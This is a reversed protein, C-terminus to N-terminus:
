RGFALLPTWDIELPVVKIMEIFEEESCFYWEDDVLKRYEGPYWPDNYVMYMDWDYSAENANVAFLGFDYYGGGHYGKKWIEKKETICANTHWGWDSGGIILKIEGNEYGYVAYLCNTPTKDYM